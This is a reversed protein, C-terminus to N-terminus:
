NELLDTVDPYDLEASDEAWEAWSKLFKNSGICEMNGIVCLHMRPRTMAVNLRRKESLFGVEREFNSRVLSMVIANKERGQFGDVSAVEIIGDSADEGYKEILLRKILAVQASYPTIIGVDQRTVGAQLLKDVYMVTLMAEHQNYKSFTIKDETETEPYDDGQTDLWIVPVSTEDTLDVHDLGSLLRKAVTEHAELKGKYMSKSPFDMIQENMRYQISLLVKLKEGYLKELRDFLTTELKHKLKENHTKITPPLQLNDGAIILKQASLANIIPIWCQPELAQSVEDIIIADFLSPIQKTVDKVNYSGAGHLTSVVVSSHSFISALVKKERIKYDKKLHKLDAFLEKKKLGRSRSIKKLVSDIESRVDRLVQGENCTKSVIDLSHILNSDLLRAPHGLRILQDGPIHAHLRELINDVSINSPGCVLVKQQNKVLQRIIEILTYTKGTGPPGHIMSVNSGMAFKVARRQPQNLTEDFFEISEDESTHPSQEGLLVSILNNKAETTIDHLDNMVYEMRKYTVSNALKVLWLRGEIDTNAEHREEVAFSINKSTVKTIVGEIGNNEDPKSKAPQVRVIDGIRVDGTNLDEEISSSTSKDQELEVVTRGGLGTRTNSIVLNLVALGHAALKKPPLTALLDNTENVDVNREDKIANLFGNTLNELSVKPM